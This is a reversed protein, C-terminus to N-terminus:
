IVGEVQQRLDRLERDGPFYEKADKLLRSITEFQDDGLEGGSEVFSIAGRFLNVYAHVSARGRHREVSIAEQLYNVAEGFAKERSYRRDVMQAFLMKALTTLSHAHREISLAHRAHQVANDMFESENNGRYRSLNYLALQEWYRSNWRWAPRVADYFAGAEAAGLYKKIIDEYDFLRAALKAEPSRRKITERNVRPAIATALRRFVTSVAEKPARELTREAMTRNLPVVFSRAPDFYALPIPHSPEFQRDWNATNSAAALVEYRAGGPFCVQALAAVLYRNREIDGVEAFTSDVIRDIPRMDKLIHCCAVAVPESEIISVFRAKNSLAESNGVLGRREYLDVLQGAEARSLGLGSITTYPSGGFSRQIHNHRYSREAGVFVIDRRKSLEFVNNISQAQDAFNDVIILLPHPISNIARVTTAPEIRSLASCNLTVVGQQSFRYALRRLVTTKGVGSVDEIVLVREAVTGKLMAEVHGVARATLTRGVDWHGELDSWDPPNGYAFKIANSSSAPASTPVPDFDNAFSLVVDNPMEDDFLNRTDPSVLEGPSQRQPTLADIEDVFSSLSGHYLILGRNICEQETHNDPFPEVLFSPGKDQRPSTSTRKALYYELDLEDLPTGAVVFPEVPMVEALVTMWANSDAMNAAYEARSFVYGKEPQRAYGHLHVVQLSELTRADSYTDTYHAPATQQLPGLATEYAHELADDINLTYARKWIFQPLKALSPGSVCPTFRQTLLAEVQNPTLASYARQLSSSARMGTTTALEDRLTGGSPLKEGNGGVSDLSVGAGLFLNYEGARVSTILANKQDPQLESLSSIQM